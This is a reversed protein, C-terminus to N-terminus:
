RRGEAARGLLATKEQSGKSSGFYFSLIATVASGEVGLLINVADRSEPAIRVFMIAALTGFFGAVFVTALAGVTRDRTSIQMARASAHDSIELQELQVGLTAMDKAFAQDLEKLKLLDAPTAGAVAAAVETEDATPKGLLNEGIQRVALGAFPGGLATALAPAVSAVIGKWGSM